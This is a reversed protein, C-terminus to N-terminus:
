FNSIMCSHTILNLDKQLVKISITYNYKLKEIRDKNRESRKWLKIESM